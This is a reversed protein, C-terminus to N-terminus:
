GDIRAPPRAAPLRAPAIALVVAALGAFRRPHGVDVYACQAGLARDREVELAALASAAFNRALALSTAACCIGRRRSSARVARSSQRPRYESIKSVRIPCHM